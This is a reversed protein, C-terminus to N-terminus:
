EKKREERKKKKKKKKKKMKGGLESRGEWCSGPPALSRTISCIIEYLVSGESPSERGERGGEGRGGKRGEREM